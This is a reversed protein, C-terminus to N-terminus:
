RPRVVLVCVTTPPPPTEAESHPRLRFAFNLAPPLATAEAMVVSCAGRGAMRPLLLLLLRLSMPMRDTSETSVEPDAVMLLPLLAVRKWDTSAVM